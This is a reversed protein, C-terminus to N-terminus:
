GCTTCMARVSASSTSIPGRTAEGRAHSGVLVAAEAGPADQRVRAVLRGRWKEYDMATMDAGM